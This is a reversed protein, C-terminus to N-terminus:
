GSSLFAFGLLVATRVGADCTTRHERLGPEAVRARRVLGRRHLAQRCPSPLPAPLVTSAPLPELATPARHQEPQLARSPTLSRTAQRCPSFSRNPPSPTSAPLSPAPAPAEFPKRALQIPLRISKPAQPCPPGLCPPSCTSAPLSSRRDNPQSGHGPPRRHNPASAFRAPPRTRGTVASQTFDRFAL